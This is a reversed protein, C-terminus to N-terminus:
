IRDIGASRGRLAPGIQEEVNQVATQVGHKAAFAKVEEAGPAVVVVIREAGAGRAAAIVHGLIPLGAVAHMVKPTASKMRTGQGAALIVCARAM